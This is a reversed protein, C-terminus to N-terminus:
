AKARPRAVSAIGAIVCFVAALGLTVKTAGTTLVAFLVGVIATGITQGMLRATAQMGSAGGSRAAPASTIIARNNPSNFLGFGVGAFSMRWGIEWLGAHEPLFLLLLMGIFMVAQGTTGVLAASFRDSLRGAIPAVFAVTLPWPTMLMGTEGRTLGLVDEFYFPLCVWVMGQAAFSFTSATVSLAFVPRAMLDVPLLPNPRSLQRRLLLVFATAAVAFMSLAFWREEAEGAGDIALIFGGFAVTNLVASLLDFKHGARPSDPLMKLGLLLGAIGFPINLAFLWQWPAVSLVASAVSPGLAGTTSGIMANYGFGRGLTSRPYIYRLLASNVSMVGSAGIGQAIRAAILLPLNDALACALSAVTFIALGILYVRRFGFIEGLAALPLLTMTVSLQYANVVWIASSPSIAFDRAITPLAINAITGTLVAMILGLGTTFIAWFQRPQPLGDPPHDSM